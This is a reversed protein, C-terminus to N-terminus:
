FRKSLFQLDRVCFFFILCIHSSGFSLIICSVICHLKLINLSFFKLGIIGRRRVGMEWWCEWRGGVDGVLMLEHGRTKCTLEKAEGSVMSNKVDGDIRYRGNISRIGQVKERRRGQRGGEQDGEMHDGNRHNQEQELLKSLNTTKKKM